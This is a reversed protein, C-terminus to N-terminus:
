NNDNNDKHNNNITSPAIVEGCNTCQFLERLDWRWGWLEFSPNDCDCKTRYTRDRTKLAAYFPTVKSSKGKVPRWRAIDEQQFREFHEAKAWGKQDHTLQDTRLPMGNKAIDAAQAEGAEVSTWYGDETMGNLILYEIFGEDDFEHPMQGGERLPNHQQYEKTRRPDIPEAEAEVIAAKNAAMKAQVQKINRRRAM